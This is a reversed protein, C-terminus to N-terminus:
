QNKLLSLNFLTNMVKISTNNKKTKRLLKKQMKKNQKKLKLNEEFLYSIFQQLEDFAEYCDSYDEKLKKIIKSKKM